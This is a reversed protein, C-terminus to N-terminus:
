KTKRIELQVSPVLEFGYEQCLAKYAAIFEDMRKKEATAIIRQATELDIEQVATEQAIGNRQTKDKTAM